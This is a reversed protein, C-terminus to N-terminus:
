AGRKEGIGAIQGAWRMRRSIIVRIINRSFYLDRFEENHLETWVETVEYVKSGFVNRLM